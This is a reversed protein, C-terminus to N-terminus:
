DTGVLQQQQTGKKRRRKRKDGDEGHEAALQDMASKSEASPLEGGNAPESFALKIGMEDLVEEGSQELNEIMDGKETSLDLQSCLRRLATKQWMAAEDTIWPGYDKAAADSSKKARDIEKQSLVVFRDYGDKWICKAYVYKLRGRADPDECPKFRLEAPEYSYDFVDNEYVVRSYIDRINADAQKALKQLGKYGDFFTAVKGGTHKNRRPVLYAERFSPDLSLGLQAAKMVAGLISMTSCDMLGPATQVATLYVRVMRKKDVHAPLARLIQGEMKMMAKRIEANKQDVTQIESM